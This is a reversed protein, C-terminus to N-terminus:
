ERVLGLVNKANDRLAEYKVKLEVAIPSRQKFAKPFKGKHSRDCIALLLPGHVKSDWKVLVSASSSSSSSSSSAGAAPEHAASGLLLTQGGKRKGLLGSQGSSAIEYKDPVFKTPVWKKMHEEVQTRSPGELEGPAYSVVKAMAARILNPDQTKLYGVQEIWVSDRPRVRKFLRVNCITTPILPILSGTRIGFYGSGSGIGAYTGAHLAPLVEKVLAREAVLAAERQLVEDTFVPGECPFDRAESAAKTLPLGLNVLGDDRLFMFQRYKSINTVAQVLDPTAAKWTKLLNEDYAVVTVHASFHANLMGHNFTDSSNFAGATKQAAVDPDFKTHGQLQFWLQLQDVLGFLVLLALAGFCFQGHQPHNAARFSQVRQFLRDM